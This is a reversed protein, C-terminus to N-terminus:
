FIMEVHLLIVQMSSDMLSAAVVADQIEVKDHCMLRAHASISHVTEIITFQKHNM